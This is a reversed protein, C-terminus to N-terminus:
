HRLKGKEKTIKASFDKKGKMHNTDYEKQM